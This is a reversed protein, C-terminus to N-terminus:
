CCCRCGDPIADIGFIPGLCIDSWRVPIGSLLCSETLAFVVNMNHMMKNRLSKLPTTDGQPDRLVAPWIVYRTVSAVSITLPAAVEWCVVALRLLTKTQVSGGEM